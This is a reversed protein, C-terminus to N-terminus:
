AIGQLGLNAANLQSEPVQWLGKIAEAKEMQGVKM